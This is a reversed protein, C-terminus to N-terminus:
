PAKLWFEINDLDANPWYKEIELKFGTDEGNTFDLYFPLKYHPKVMKFRNLSIRYLLQGERSFREIKRPRNEDPEFYLNCLTNGWKDKLTLIQLGASKEGHIEIYDYEYDPLRGLVLSILESTKMPISVMQNLSPDNVKKKFFRNRNFVLGYFWERDFALSVFRKGSLHYLELRIEGTKKAVIGIRASYSKEQGFIRVKGKGKITKLTSNVNKLSEVLRVAESHQEYDTPISVPKDYFISCGSFFLASFFCIVLIFIKM